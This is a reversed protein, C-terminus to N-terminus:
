RRLVPKEVAPLELPLPLAAIAATLAPMSPLAKLPGWEYPKDESLKAWETWQRQGQWMVEVSKLLLTRTERDFEARTARGALPQGDQTVLFRVAGEQDVGTGSDLTVSIREKARYSARPASIVAVGAKNPLRLVVQSFDLQDFGGELQKVGKARMLVPAGGKADWWRIDITGDVGPAPPQAIEGCGACLLAIFALRHLRVTMILWVRAVSPRLEMAGPRQGQTVQRHSASSYVM